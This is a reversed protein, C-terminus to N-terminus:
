IRKYVVMYQWIYAKYSVMKRMYMNGNIHCTGWFRGCLHGMINEYISRVCTQVQATVEIMMAKLRVSISSEVLVDREILISVFHKNNNLLCRHQQKSIVFEAM